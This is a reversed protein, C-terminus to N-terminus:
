LEEALEEAEPLAAGGAVAAVPSREYKEAFSTELASRSEAAAAASPANGYSSSSCRAAIVTSLSLLSGESSARSCAVGLAATQNQSRHGREKSEATPSRLWLLHHVPQGDCCRMSSSMSRLGEIVPLTEKEKRM